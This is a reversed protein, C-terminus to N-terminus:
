YCNLSGNLYNVIAREYKEECEIEVSQHKGYLIESGRQTQIYTQINTQRNTHRDRIYFFLMELGRHSCQLVM